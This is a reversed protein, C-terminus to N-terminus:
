RSGEPLAMLAPLWKQYCGEREAARLRNFDRYELSCLHLAIRKRGNDPYMANWQRSIAGWNTVAIAVLIALLVLYWPWSMGDPENGGRASGADKRRGFVRLGM